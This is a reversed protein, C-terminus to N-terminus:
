LPLLNTDVARRDSSRIRRKRRTIDTHSVIPKNKTRITLASDGAPLSLGAFQPYDPTFHGSTVAIRTGHSGLKRPIQRRQGDSAPHSDHEVRRSYLRM